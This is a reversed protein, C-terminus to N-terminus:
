SPAQSASRERLFDRRSLIQKKECCHMSFYRLARRVSALTAKGRVCSNDIRNRNLRGISDFHPRNSVASAAM